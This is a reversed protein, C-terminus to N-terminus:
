SPRHAAAARVDEVGMVLVAMVATEVATEVV